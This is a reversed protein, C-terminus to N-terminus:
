QRLSPKRSGRARAVERLDGDRRQVMGSGPTKPRTVPKARPSYLILHESAEYILQSAGSRYRAPQSASCSVAGGGLFCSQGKDYQKRYQIKAPRLRHAVM